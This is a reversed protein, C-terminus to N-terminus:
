MCYVAQTSTVLVFFYIIMLKDFGQVYLRESFHVAVIRLCNRNVVAHCPLHYVPGFWFGASPRLISNDALDIKTFSTVWAFRLVFVQVGVQTM